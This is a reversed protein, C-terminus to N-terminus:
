KQYETLAKDLAEELSDGRYSVGNSESGVYGMTVIVLTGHPKFCCYIKVCDFDRLREIKEGTTM